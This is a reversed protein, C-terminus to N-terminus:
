HFFYHGCAASRVHCATRGENTDHWSPSPPAPRTGAGRQDNTRIQWPSGFNQLILHESPVEEPHDKLEESDYRTIRAVMRALWERSFLFKALQYCEYVLLCVAAILSILLALNMLVCVM